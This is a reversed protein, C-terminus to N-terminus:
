FLCYNEGRKRANVKKLHHWMKHQWSDCFVEKDLKAQHRIINEKRISEPDDEYPREILEYPCSLRTIDKISRVPNGAVLHYPNVDKDVIAGAAVLANEGVRVGARVYITTGLIAGSAIIVPHKENSDLTCRPGVWAKQQVLSFLGISCRSHIKAGEQLKLFGRVVTNTGISCKHGIDSGPGIIARHGTQFGEEIRSGAYIVSHSRIVANDGIVTELEGPEVGKPPLGIVVWDQFVVNKGICVNPFIKKTEM